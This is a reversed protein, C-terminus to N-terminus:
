VSQHPRVRDCGLAAALVVAYFRLSNLWHVNYPERVPFLRNGLLGSLRGLLREPLGGSVCLEGYGIQGPSNQRAM